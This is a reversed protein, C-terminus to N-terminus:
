ELDAAPQPKSFTSKLHQRRLIAAGKEADIEELSFGDFEKLWRRVIEREDARFADDLLVVVDESLLPFLIPLAPYRAWRQIIGPPGDIIFMDIPGLNHLQETDYWLWSKGGIAVEKLPTYTVTAIDQLGHKKLNAVTIAAFREDHDLSVVSGEGIEQLSYATILTSVGSGVELVLRPRYERILAVIINAFDPLIAWEGGLVPLPYRFRLTSFLYFLSETQRFNSESQQLVYQIGRYDGIGVIILLAGEAALSLLLIAQHILLWGIILGGFFPLCLIIVIIKDKKKLYM